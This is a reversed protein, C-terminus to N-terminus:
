TMQHSDQGEAYLPYRPYLTKSILPCMGTHRKCLHHKLYVVLMTALIMLQDSKKTKNQKTKRTLHKTFSKKEHNCVCMLQLQVLLFALVFSLFLGKTSAALRNM